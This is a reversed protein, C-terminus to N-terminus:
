RVKDNDKPCVVVMPGTGSDQLRLVAAILVGIATSDIFTVDTLDLVLRQRGADIHDFLSARLEPAASYDLEGGAYVVAIDAAYGVGEIGTRGTIYFFSM